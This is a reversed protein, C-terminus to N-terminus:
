RCLARDLASIVHNEKISYMCSFQQFKWTCCPCNKNTCLSGTYVPLTDYGKTRLSPHLIGWLSVTPIGLGQAIHLLGTDPTLILSMRRMAEAVYRIPKGVLSMGYTSPLDMIPDIGVPICGRTHLYMCVAPLIGRDYDRVRDGSRLVIGVLPKTKGAFKEDVEACVAPDSRLVPASNETSYGFHQLWFESIGLDCKGGCQREYDMFASNCDYVKDAQRIVQPVRGDVSRFQPSICKNGETTWEFQSINWIKDIGALWLADKLAGSAYAIDTVAQIEAEPHEARIERILPQLLIADGISPRQRIIVIKM